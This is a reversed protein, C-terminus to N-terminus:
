KVPLEKLVQPGLLELLAKLAKLVLLGRYVLARTLILYYDTYV